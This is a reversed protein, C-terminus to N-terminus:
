YKKKGPLSEPPQTGKEAPASKRLRRRAGAPRYGNMFSLRCGPAAGGPRSGARGGRAVLEGPPGVKKNIGSPLPNSTGGKTSRHNSKGGRHEGGDALLEGLRPIVFPGPLDNIRPCGPLYLTRIFFLAGVGILAM